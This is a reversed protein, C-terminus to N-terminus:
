DSEVLGTKYITVTKTEGTSPSSLVVTGNQSTEGTLRDFLVDSGGGVLTITLITDSSNLIFDKNASDNPNYSSGAFLTVKVSSLRVGYRSSSYSSLTQSRAQRLVEVITSTDIALAQNKRVNIFASFVIATLISMISLVILIELTTFGKKNKLKM